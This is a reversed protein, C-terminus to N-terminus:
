YTTKTKIKGEWKEYGGKLISIDEYGAKKLRNATRSSVSVKQDYLYVPRDKRLSDMSVKISSYPLNRAGMIHGAEFIDKERVDIVQAKRMNARFEEQDIFTASKKGIYKVYAWNIAM